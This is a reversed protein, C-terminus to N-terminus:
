SLKRSIGFGDINRQLLECIAECCGAPSGLGLIIAECCEGPSELVMLIENSFHAFPKVVVEQLDWVMLLLNM